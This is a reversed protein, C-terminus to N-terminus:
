PKKIVNPLQAPKAIPEPSNTLREPTVQGAKKKAAVTTLQAADRRHGQTVSKLARHMAVLQPFDTRPGEEIEATTAPRLRTVFDFRQTTPWIGDSPVKLNVSFHQHLLTVDARVFNGTLEQSAYYLRPFPEGAVPMFGRAPDSKDVSPVHCLACNRLHNIRVLEVVVPKKSRPHPFPAGPDGKDLCDHLYEEAGAPRLKCIAESAHEAAPVWPYRLAECFIPMYEDPNRKCLGDCAERRVAPSVDFVARQVLARTTARHPVKALEKVLLLRVPEEEVQLMQM